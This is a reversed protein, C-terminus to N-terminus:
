PQLETAGVTDTASVAQWNELLVYYYCIGDFLCNLSSVSASIHLFIRLANMTEVTVSINKALFYILVSVHYPIFCVLFTVLNSIVIKLSKNNKLKKDQPNQNRLGKLIWLVNVSCFVMIITSVLFVTELSAVIGVKNWTANSFNQFCSDRHDHLKYAAPSAGFILAWIALCVVAAKQPSRLKKMTYPFRLTIYRDVSICVIFLISGYINIYILSELFSCFGSGLRWPREYAYMKFPLSFILLIDNMVLSTLYVTTETFRRIRFFLTWLATLNLPLGLAITPIYIFGQVWCVPCESM